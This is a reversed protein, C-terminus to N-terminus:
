TTSCPGLRPSSSPSTQSGTATTAIAPTASSTKTPPYTTAELRVVHKPSLPLAGVVVDMAATDMVALDIVAADMAADMAATDMATADMAVADMAALDMAAADMAALDIAALDMAALDIAAADMAALDIAAASVFTWRECSITRAPVCTLM